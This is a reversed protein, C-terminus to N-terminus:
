LYAGRLWPLRRPDLPGTIFYKGMAKQEGASLSYLPWSSTGRRAHPRHGPRVTLSWGHIVLWPHGLIIPPSTLQTVYFTISETHEHIKM